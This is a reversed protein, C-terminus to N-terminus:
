TPMRLIRDEMVRTDPSDSTEDSLEQELALLADYAEEPNSYPGPDVLTGGARVATDEPDGAAPQEIITLGDDLEVICYSRM